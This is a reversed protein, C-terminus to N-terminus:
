TLRVDGLPERPIDDNANVMHHALPALNEFLETILAADWDCDNMAQRMNRLWRGAQLEGIVFPFHRRRLRPHGYLNSYLPPGGLWQVFFLTLKDKGPGLDEPYVPRLDPDAEVLEYFRQVLERVATEGGARDFHTQQIENTM